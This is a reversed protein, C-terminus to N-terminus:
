QAARVDLFPFRDPKREAMVSYVKSTMEDARPKTHYDPSM